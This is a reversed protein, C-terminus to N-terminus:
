EEEGRFTIPEVANCRGTVAITAEGFDVERGESRFDPFITTEKEKPGCQPNHVVVVDVAYPECPDEASTVWESAAGRRKIADMPAVEEGTGTTIAEYVFDISVEMPQDEGRRVTDLKSRDLLYDYEDSESYTLNGEGIKIEIEQPLFTLEDEDAYMSDADGLPPTFVINTTPGEDSPTRATVVHVPTGAESALTFRAGIPVLTTVDTNLAVTKIDLNTDGMMPSGDAEATGSLGDRIKIETDRLDIRAM